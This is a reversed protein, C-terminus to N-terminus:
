LIELHLDYGFNLVWKLFSYMNSKIKTIKTNRLQAFM